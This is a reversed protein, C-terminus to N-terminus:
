KQSELCCESRISSLARTKGSIPVVKVHDGRKSQIVREVQVRAAQVDTGQHLSRRMSFGTSTARLALLYMDFNTVGGMQWSRVDVSLCLHLSILGLHPLHSRNPRSHSYLGSGAVKFGSDDIEDTFEVERGTDGIGGVSESM